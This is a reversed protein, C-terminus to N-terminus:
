SSMYLQAIARLRCNPIISYRIIKGLGNCLTSELMKEIPCEQDAFFDAKTQACFLRSCKMGIDDPTTWLILSFIKHGRM